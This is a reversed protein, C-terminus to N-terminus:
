LCPLGGLRSTDLIQAAFCSAIDIRCASAFRELKAFAMESM